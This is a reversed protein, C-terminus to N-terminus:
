GCALRLDDDSLSSTTYLVVRPPAVSLKNKNRVELREVAARQLFISLLFKKEKSREGYLKDTMDSSLLKLLHREYIM